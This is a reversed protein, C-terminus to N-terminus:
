KLIILIESKTFQIILCLFFIHTRVSSNNPFHLPILLSIKLRTSILYHLRQFIPYDKFKPLRQILYHLRQIKLLTSKLRTFKPLRQFNPKPFK